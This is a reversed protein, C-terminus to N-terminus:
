TLQDLFNNEIQITLYILGLLNTSLNIINPADESIAISNILIQLCFFNSKIGIELSTFWTFPSFIFM